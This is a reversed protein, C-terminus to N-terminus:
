QSEKYCVCTHARHLRLLNVKGPLGLDAEILADYLKRVSPWADRDEILDQYGESLEEPFSAVWKGVLCKVEEVPAGGSLKELAEHARKVTPLKTSM